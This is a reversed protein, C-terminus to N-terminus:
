ALHRRQLVKEDDGAVPGFRALDIEDHERDAAIVDAEGTEDGVRHEVVGARQAIEAAPHAAHVSALFRLRRQGLEDGPGIQERDHRM